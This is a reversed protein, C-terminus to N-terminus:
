DGSDIPILKFRQKITTNSKEPEPYYVAEIITLSGVSATITVSICHPPLNVIKCLQNYFSNSDVIDIDDNKKNFFKM